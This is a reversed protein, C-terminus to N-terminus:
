KDVRLILGLEKLGQTDMGSYRTWTKSWKDRMDQVERAMLGDKDLEELLAMVKGMWGGLLATKKSVWNGREEEASMDVKERMLAFLPKYCRNFEDIVENAIRETESCVFTGSRKPNNIANLSITHDRMRLVTAFM